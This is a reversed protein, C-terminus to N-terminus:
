RYKNINCYIINQPPRVIPEGLTNLFDGLPKPEKYKIPTNLVFIYNYNLKNAGIENMYDNFKKSVLWGNEMDPIIGEMICWRFYLDKLCELRQNNLKPTGKPNHGYNVRYIKELKVEGIIASAGKNEKNEYIYTTISNRIIGEDLGLIIRKAFEFFKYGDLIMQSYPPNESIMTNM